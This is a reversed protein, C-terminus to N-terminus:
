QESATLVNYTAAKITEGWDSACVQHGILAAGIKFGAAKRIDDPNVRDRGNTLANVRASSRLQEYTRGDADHIRHSALEELLNFTVEELYPAETDSAITVHPVAKRVAALDVDITEIRDPRKVFNRLATLRESRGERDGLLAGRSMRAVLSGGLPTTYQLSEHPNIAFFVGQLNEMPIIEGGVELEKSALMANATTLTRPNGRNPEDFLVLGLNKHLIPTTEGRMTKVVPQASGVKETTVMEQLDGLLKAPTLDPRGPVFAVNNRDIGAMHAIYRLLMTKGAGYPSGYITNPYEPDLLTSVTAEIATDEGVMLNEHISGIAERHFRQAMRAAEAVASEMQKSEDSMIVHLRAEPNTM